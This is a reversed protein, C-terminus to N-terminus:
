WGGIGREVKVGDTIEQETLDSVKGKSKLVEFATTAFICSQKAQMLEDMRDYLYFGPVKETLCVQFADRYCQRAIDRTAAPEELLKEGIANVLDKQEIDSSEGAKRLSTFAEAAMRCQEDELFIESRRVDVNEEAVNEQLANIHSSAMCDIVKSRTLKPHTSYYEGTREVSFDAGGSACGALLLLSGAAVKTVSNRM